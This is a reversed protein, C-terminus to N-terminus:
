DAGREAHRKNSTGEFEWSLYKSIEAATLEWNERSCSGLLKALAEEVQQWDFERLILLGRGFRYEGPEMSRVLWSPSCVTVRFQDSGDSDKIGVDLNIDVCFDHVDAPLDKGAVKLDYSYLSKIEIRLPM